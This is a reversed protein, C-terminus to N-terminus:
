NYNHYNLRLTLSIQKSMEGFFQTPGPNSYYDNLKWQESRKKYEL